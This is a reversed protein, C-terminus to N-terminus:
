VIRAPRGRRQREGVDMPDHAARRFPEASRRVLLSRLFATRWSFVFVRFRLSTRRAKTALRMQSIGRDRISQACRHLVCVAEFRLRPLWGSSARRPARGLPVAAGNRLRGEVRGLFHAETVAPDDHAHMDGRTILVRPEAGPSAHVVRHSFLRSGMEFLIVDDPAVSAIDVARVLLVDAPRIAPLMSTGAVRVRAEGCRRLVQSVLRPAVEDLNLLEKQQDQVPVPHRQGQRM